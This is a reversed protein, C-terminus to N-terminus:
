RFQDHRKASIEYILTCELEEPQSRRACNAAIQTGQDGVFNPAIAAARQDFAVAAPDKHSAAFEVPGVAEERAPSIKGDEYARKQRHDAGEDCQGGSDRAHGAAAKM